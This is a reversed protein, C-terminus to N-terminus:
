AGARKPLIARPPRARKRKPPERESLMALLLRAAETEGERKTAATATQEDAGLRAVVTHRPLHDPGSEEVAEYVPQGRGNAAAWEQLAAKPHKRAAAKAHVQDSWHRRVWGRAADLGRELYLAALLAETVDGLVNDSNKLDAKVGKDFRVREPVGIGRAVVACTAGSVLLNIRRSLMGEPEQPFLEYLWEAMSLGLVRDGLFELREYSEEGNRSGHTLARTWLAMDAPAHGFATGIWAALDSLVGGRDARAPSGDGLDM